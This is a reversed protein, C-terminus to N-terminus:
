MPNPYQLDEQKELVIKQYKSKGKHLFHIIAENKTLVFPISKKTKVSNMKTPIDLNLGEWNVDGKIKAYYKHNSVKKLKAYADKFYVGKLSLNSKLSRTIININYYSGGGKVGAVSFVYSAKTIPVKNKKSLVFDNAPSCSNLFVFTALCLSYAIFKSL